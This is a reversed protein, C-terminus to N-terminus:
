LFMYYMISLYIIPQISLLIILLFFKKTLLITHLFLKMLSQMINYLIINNISYLRNICQQKIHGNPIHKSIHKYIADNIREHQIINFICYFHIIYILFLISILM